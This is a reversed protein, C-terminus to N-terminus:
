ILVLAFMIGVKTFESTETLITIGDMFLLQSYQLYYSRFFKQKPLQGWNQILEDNKKSQRPSLLTTFVEKLAHLMIGNKLALLAEPPLAATFIGRPTGGYDIDFFVQWKTLQLLSNLKKTNQNRVLNQTLNMNLLKCSKCVDNIYFDPTANCM